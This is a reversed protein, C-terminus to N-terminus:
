SPALPACSFFLVSPSIIQIAFDLRGFFSPLWVHLASHPLSSILRCTFNSGTIDPLLSRQSLFFYFLVFSLSSTSAGLFVHSHKILFLLSPALVLCSSFFLCLAFFLLLTSLFFHNSLFFIHLCLCCVSPFLFPRMFSFFIRHVFCSVSSLWAFM